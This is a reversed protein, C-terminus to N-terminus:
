SRAEESQSNLYEEVLICAAEADLRGRRKQRPVQAEILRQGAWKSTMSEELLVIKLDLHNRSAEIQLAERFGRARRGMMGEDGSALLAYGIVIVSVAHSVCIGLVVEVDEKRSRPVLNPLPRVSLGLEDSLALGTRKLGLDIGLVRKM